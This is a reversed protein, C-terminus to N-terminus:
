KKNGPPRPDPPTLLDIVLLLSEFAAAIVGLAGIVGFTWFIAHFCDTYTHPNITQRIRSRCDPRDKTKREENLFVKIDSGFVDEEIRREFAKLADEGNHVLIRNREDLRYSIYSFAILLLGLV